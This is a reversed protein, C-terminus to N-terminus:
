CECQRKVQPAEVDEKKLEISGGKGERGERGEKVERGDKEVQTAERGTGNKVEILKESIKRFLMAVNSGSKASVEVYPYRNKEAYDDLEKKSLEREAIDAKNGVLFILADQGRSERVFDLWKDVGELSSRLSVDIVIICADADRM